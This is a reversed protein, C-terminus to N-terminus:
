QAVAQEPSPQSSTNPTTASQSSQQVHAAAGSQPNTQKPRASSRWKAIKLRRLNDRNEYIQAHMTPTLKPNPAM